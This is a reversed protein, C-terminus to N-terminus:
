PAPPYFRLYAFLNQMEGSDIDFPLILVIENTAASYSIEISIVNFDIDWAMFLGFYLQADYGLSTLPYPIKIFINDTIPTGAVDWDDKKVELQVSGYEASMFFNFEKYGKVPWPTGAALSSEGAVLGRWMTGNYLVLQGEDISAPLEAVVPFMPIDGAKKPIWKPLGEDVTFDDGDDGIDLVVPQLDKDAYIIQGEKTFINEIYTTGPAPFGGPVPLPIDLCGLVDIQVDFTIWVSDDPTFGKPTPITRAPAHINSVRMKDQTNIARMFYIAYEQLLDIDINPNKGIPKKGIVMKQTIKVAKDDIAILPFEGRVALIIPYDQKNNVEEMYGFIFTGVDSTYQEFTAWAALKLAESYNNISIM